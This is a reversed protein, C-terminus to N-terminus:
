YLQESKYNEGRKLICFRDDASFHIHSHLQCKSEWNASAYSPTEHILLENLAANPNKNPHEGFTM